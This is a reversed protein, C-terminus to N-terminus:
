KRIQKRGLSVLALGIVIVLLNNILADNSPAQLISILTYLASVSGVFLLLYGLVKGM